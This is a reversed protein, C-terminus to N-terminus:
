EEQSEEGHGLLGFRELRGYLTRRTIGLLEAAKSKNGGSEQLALEILMKEIEPLSKEGLLSRVREMPSGKGPELSMILIHAPTIPSKGALIIARELINRLERVNGPWSYAKLKSIVEASLGSNRVV